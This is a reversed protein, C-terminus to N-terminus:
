CCGDLDMEGGGYTWQIISDGDNKTSRYVDLAKGSHKATLKYYGAFGTSLRYLSASPNSQKSLEGGSYSVTVKPMNWFDNSSFAM